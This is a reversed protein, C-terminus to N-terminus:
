IRTDDVPRDQVRVYTESGRMPVMSKGLPVVAQVNAYTKGNNSLNHVVQVQCNLGIMDEVDFPEETLSAGSWSELDRRLSSKEHMSLTYQKRVTLAYQAHEVTADVEWVITIKHKEGWETDKMGNDVVDVCVGQHLGVPAIFHNGKRTEPAFIPM